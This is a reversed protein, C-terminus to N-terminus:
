RYDNPLARSSTRPYTLVKHGEYCRQAANLTRRASWGFRRNAERQLSTLDFLPPATERSPRRTESAEGRQGQVAELIARARQEDFIRDDREEPREEDARFEPNFWTGKYTQGAAEFSAEIRQYNRPVHSLVELERGVLMALTPTQVRGASWATKEKRSKLRKTLARTANMGILWDSRARCAAASALGELDRGPRLRQFGARIAAPTMSQRWLRRIPKKSGLDEVIERFILEGERGADCANIVESVDARGLLKKITRIRDSQGQKAKYKFEKPLIPLVDLTWRKYKPDIEEPPLLEFLHGVAFTVVYDDNEFWGDEERFGGLADAIDRAVSPKETIVLSKAMQIRSRDARGGRPSIRSGPSPARDKARVKPSSLGARRLAAEPSQASRKLPPTHGRPSSAALNSNPCGSVRWACYISVTSFCYLTHPPGAHRLGDEAPDQSALKGGLTDILVVARDGEVVHARLCGDMQQHDRALRELLERSRAGLVLRQESMQQQHGAVHGLFGAERVEAHHDVVARARALADEMEVEVHQAPTREPPRRALRLRLACRATPSRLEDLQCPIQKISERARAPEPPWRRHVPAPAAGQRGHAVTQHPELARRRSGLAARGLRAPCGM